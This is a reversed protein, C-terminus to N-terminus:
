EFLSREITGGTMLAYMHENWYPTFCVLVRGTGTLARLRRQGAILNRPFPAPRESTFRLGATRGLIIRGQARFAGDRIEVMEVPGPANLALRGRGRILTKWNFFGDGLFFSTWIPDRTLGLEISGDSAWYVGPELVWAEGDEVDMLHYGGLSPQLTVTGSGVYEPRIRAEDNYLSRLYDLPGPLRPILQITGRTNSMAGRRARVMEDSLEIRVQRMGEVDRISFEAM